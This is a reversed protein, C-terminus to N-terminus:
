GRHLGNFAISDTGFLSANYNNAKPERIFGNQMSTYRTGLESLDKISSSLALGKISSSFNGYETEYYIKDKYPKINRRKYSVFGPLSVYRTSDNDLGHSILLEQADEFNINNKNEVFEKKNEIVFSGLEPSLEGFQNSYPSITGKIGKLPIDASSLNVFTNFVDLVDISGNKNINNLSGIADPNDYNEINVRDDTVIPYGFLSTGQKIFSVPDFLNGMRDDFPLINNKNKSTIIDTEAGFILQNMVHLDEDSQMSLYSRNLGISPLLSNGLQSFTKIDKGQRGINLIGILENKPKKGLFTINKIRLNNEFGVPKQFNFSVDDKREEIKGINSNLSLKIDIIKEFTINTERNVIKTIQNIKVKNKVSLGLGSLNDNFFKSKRKKYKPM